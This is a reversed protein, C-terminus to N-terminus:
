KMQYFKLWPYFYVVGKAFLYDLMAGSAGLVVLAAMMRDIRYALHSLSIQYGIGSSAGALESVFVLVFSVAIGTRIGAVIFPLAAPFIVRLLIKSQSKTLTSAGWLLRQPVQQSGLHTNLWVSFFVAFGISFVKASEGIGFWVIVLPIIAVPPLPRFGQIIPSLWNNVLHVRGTLLGIVIGLASGIFLGVFVRFYSATIDRLLDGSRALDFLAILVKTPPPFLAVNVIGSRSLLEWVTLMLAISLASHFFNTQQSKSNNM